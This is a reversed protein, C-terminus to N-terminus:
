ARTTQHHHHQQQYQQQPQPQAPIPISFTRNHVTDNMRYYDDFRSVKVHQMWFYSRTDNVLVPISASSSSLNPNSTAPSSSSTSTSTSTSSSSAAIADLPMPALTPALTSAANNERQRIFETVCDTRDPGCAAMGIGATTTTSTPVSPSLPVAEHPSPSLMLKSLM